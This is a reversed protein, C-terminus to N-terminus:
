DKELISSKTLIQVSALLFVISPALWKTSLWEVKRERTLTIGVAVANDLIDPKTLSLEL